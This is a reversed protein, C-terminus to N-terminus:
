LSTFFLCLINLETYIDKRFFDNCIEKAIELFNVRFDLKIGVALFEGLRSLLVGETM